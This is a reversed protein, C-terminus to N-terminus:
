KMAKGQVLWSYLGVTSEAIAAFGAARLHEIAHAPALRHELPPGAVREVDPRWDLIAIRGGPRLARHAECVAAACDDLEHWLNALLWLDCSSEPLGTRDAEAHVLEVPAPISPGLKELLHGLMEAQSDVAYIKGTPGVARALPLAFYGTGAGVDAVTEGPWAAISTIVEDPPLWEIRAPDDLRHAQSASFRKEHPLNM